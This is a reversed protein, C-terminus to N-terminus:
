MLGSHYTSPVIRDGQLPDWVQGFVGPRTEPYSRWITAKPWLTSAAPYGPHPPPPGASLFRSYQGSSIVIRHCFWMFFQPQGGALRSPIRLTSASEDNVGWRQNHSNLVCVFSQDKLSNSSSINRVNPKLNRDEPINEKKTGQTVHSSYKNNGCEM